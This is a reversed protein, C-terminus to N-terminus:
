RNEPIRTANQNRSGFFLRLVQSGMFGLVPVRAGFYGLV